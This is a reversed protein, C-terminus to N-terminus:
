RKNKNRRIKRGTKRKEQDIFMNAIFCEPGAIKYTIFSFEDELIELGERELIYKAYLTNKIMM